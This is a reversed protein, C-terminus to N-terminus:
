HEAGLSPIIITSAKGVYRLSLVELGGQAKSRVLLACSLPCVMAITPVPERRRINQGCVRARVSHNRGVPLAMHTLQWAQRRYVSRCCWIKNTPFPPPLVEARSIFQNPHAVGKAVNETVLWVRMLDASDYTKLELLTDIEDVLHKMLSTAFGDIIAKLSNWSYDDPKTDQASQLLNNLGPTFADHQHHNGEMLGPKKALEEIAPFLVREETDQHHEVTKVWATCFFLFDRIDTPSSVHPGQLYISNLGRILTNHVHSM